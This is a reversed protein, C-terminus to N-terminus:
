PITQLQQQLLFLGPNAPPGGAATESFVPHATALILLLVVASIVSKKM